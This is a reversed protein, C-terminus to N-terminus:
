KELEKFSIVANGKQTIKIVCKYIPIIEERPVERFHHSECTLIFTDNTYEYEIKIPLLSTFLANRLQLNELERLSQYLERAM